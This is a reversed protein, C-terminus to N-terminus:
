DVVVSRQSYLRDQPRDVLGLAQVLVIRELDVGLDTDLHKEGVVGLFAGQRELLLARRVELHLLSKAASTATAAPAGLSSAPRPARSPVRQCSGSMPCRSGM